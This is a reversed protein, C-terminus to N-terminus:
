LGDGLGRVYRSQGVQGIVHRQMEHMMYSVSEDNISTTLFLEKVGLVVSIKLVCRKARM